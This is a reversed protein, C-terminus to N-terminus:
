FLRKARYLQDTNRTQLPADNSLSCTTPFGCHMKNLFTMKMTVKSNLRNYVSCYYCTLISSIIVNRLLYAQLVKVDKYKFEEIM